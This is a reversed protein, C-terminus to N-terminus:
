VPKECKIRGLVVKSKHGQELRQWTLLHVGWGGPQQAGYEQRRKDKEIGCVGKDLGTPILGQLQVEFIFEVHFM